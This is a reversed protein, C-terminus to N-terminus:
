FAPLNNRPLFRLTLGNWTSPGVVSFAIRQRVLFRTWLVLLEGKTSSRLARHSAFDSVPRCLDSLYSLASYGHSVALCVQAAIRYSIRQSAPLWYLVDRMYASVPAYKPIHGILRASSRLVRCLRGMLGSPYGALVSCCHGIRSTSSPMSLYWLLMM